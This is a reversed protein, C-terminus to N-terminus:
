ELTCITQDFDRLKCMWCLYKANTPKVNQYYSITLLAFDYSMVSRSSLMLIHYVLSETIILLCQTGIKKAPNKRDTNYVRPSLDSASNPKEQKQKCNGLYCKKFLDRIRFM